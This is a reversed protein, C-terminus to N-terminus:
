YWQGSKTLRLAREVVNPNSTDPGESVGNSKCINYGRADIAIAPQDATASLSGTTFTVSACENDPLAMNATWQRISNQVANPANNHKGDYLGSIPRNILSVDVPQLAIGGSGACFITGGNPVTIDDTRKGSTSGFLGNTVLDAGCEIGSDAAYIAYTSERAAAALIYQKRSIDIIFAAVGLVVAATLVAFLLTYGKNSSINKM